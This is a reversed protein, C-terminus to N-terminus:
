NACFNQKKVNEAGLEIVTCNAGMARAIEPAFTAMIAQATRTPYYAQLRTIHEFLASGRADYFYKPSIRAPTQYFGKVPEMHEPTFRETM